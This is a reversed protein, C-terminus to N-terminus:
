AGEDGDLGDVPFLILQNPDERFLALQGMQRQANLRRLWCRKALEPYEDIYCVNDTNPEQEPM